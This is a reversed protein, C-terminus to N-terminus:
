CRRKSSLTCLNIFLSTHYFVKGELVLTKWECKELEALRGFNFCFGFSRRYYCLHLSLIRPRFLDLLVGLMHDQQHCCASQIPLLCWSFGNVNSWIEETLLQIFIVLSNLCDFLCIVMGLFLYM